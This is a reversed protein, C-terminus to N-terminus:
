REKQTQPAKRLSLLSHWASDNSFARHSSRPYFRIQHGLNGEKLSIVFCGFRPEDSGSTGTNATALKVVCPHSVLVPKAKITCNRLGADQPLDYRLRSSLDAATNGFRRPQFSEETVGFREAYPRSRSNPSRRGREKASGRPVCSGRRRHIEIQQVIRWDHQTDAKDAFLLGARDIRASVDQRGHVCFGVQELQPKSSLNRM